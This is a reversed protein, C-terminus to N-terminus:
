SCGFVENEGRVYKSFMFCGVCKYEFYFWWLLDKFVLNLIIEDLDIKM